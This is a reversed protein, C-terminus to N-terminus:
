QFRNQVTQRTDSIRKILIKGSNLEKILDWGNNIYETVEEETVLKSENKIPNGPNNDKKQRQKRESKILVETEEERGEERIRRIMTRIQEPSISLKEAIPALEIDSIKGMLAAIVETRVEEKTLTPKEQWDVQTYRQALTELNANHYPAKHSPLTHGMLFEKDDEAMQGGSTYGSDLISRFTKRLSHFKVNKWEKIGARRAAKKVLRQLTDETIHRNPNINNYGGEAVFLPEEDDISEQKRAREELYLKLAESSQPGFFTYYEVDEKAAGPVRDKLSPTIHISIPTKNAELQDKIDGYKLSRLTANRLGSQVACLIIAKDRLSSAMIAMKYAEQKTPVREATRSRKWKYGDLDLDKIGNHKFFSRLYGTFIHASRLKRREAYTDCFAQVKGEVDKKRLKILADPDLKSYKVFRALCKFYSRKTAYSNGRRKIAKIWNNVSDYKSSDWEDDLHLVDEFWFRSLRIM